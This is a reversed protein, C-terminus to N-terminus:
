EVFVSYDRGEWRDTTPYYFTFIFVTGAKFGKQIDIYFVGLGSPKLENDNVTKWNDASWRVIAPEHSVIRLVDNTRVRKIPKNKKWAALSSKISQATYREYVEPIIDCGMCDRKTRLLKIYEAHAWVLPTASGTGRGKFLGKKHIDAADWVQEPLMGGDNAFGEMTKIYLDVSNGALFEYVGREGTLLPWGRGVGTGDFPLGDEKEGYGDNNYRRWVPGSPTDVKLIHDIVPLTKLMHTDKPDRIGYRVLELFGGDVITCQSHGKVMEPPLNKIPLFVQCETGGMDLAEPAIPAIRQYHEPYKALICGCDTFTWDELRTQWYDAIEFLYQSERYEGIERAWHAACVLATIEAALTSPSFGSNEEWREQETVPGEKVLFSVAKKVMPYFDEKLVGMKKLRWALIVPFAVEDLQIKQWYPRGDLWMNQAWSGDAKQTSQLFKLVHVSTEMDGMAMFGFGAKVLDRPWVLHYGGTESDDRAEGWPISLSAIVGGKDTKDEHAKLAMASIRYLRGGDFGQASLDELGSLYDHWGKIYEREINRYGKKMASNAEFVTGAEDRGFSLVITFDKSPKIEAMLAINGDDVKEFSWDMKFDDKLDQWGDSYGSYGCSMKLFPVDATLALVIDERWAILCDRDGYRACKGYNGYGKNKVHPALLIFLQYDAPTGKLAQFSANFVISQGSPDAVVRKIIRYRGSKATNTIKYALANQDIYEIESITDRREEDFFTKGDTILFQIDRTNAMDIKPYFVETIIGNAITFWVKSTDNCATGIGQKSAPSWNPPLGPKGFPQKM